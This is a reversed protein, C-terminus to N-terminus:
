NQVLKEVFEAEQGLKRNRMEKLSMIRVNAIRQSSENTKHSEAKFSEAASTGCTDDTNQKTLDDQVLNNRKLLINKGGQIKIKLKNRTQSLM